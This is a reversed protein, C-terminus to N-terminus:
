SEVKQKGDIIVCQYKGFATHARKINNFIKPSTYACADHRDGKSDVLDAHAIIVLANEGSEAIFADWQTKDDVLCGAYYIYMDNVCQLSWNGHARKKIVKVRTQM